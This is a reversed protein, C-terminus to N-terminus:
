LRFRKLLTNWQGETLIHLGVERKAQSDIAYVYNMYRGYRDEKDALEAQEILDLMTKTLPFDIEVDGNIYHYTSSKIVDKRILDIIYANISDVLSLRDLIEEDEKKVRLKFTKYKEKNYSDIYKKKDFM